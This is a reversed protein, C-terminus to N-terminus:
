LSQGVRTRSACSTLSQRGKIVCIGLSTVDISPGLLQVVSRSIRLGIRHAIVTVTLQLTRCQGASRAAKIAQRGVLTHGKTIVGRTVSRRFLSASVTM